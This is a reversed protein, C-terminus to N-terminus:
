NGKGNEAPPNQYINLSSLANLVGDQGEKDEEEDEVYPGDSSRRKELKSLDRVYFEKCPTEVDVVNIEEDSSPITPIDTEKPIKETTTPVKLSEFVKDMDIQETPKLSEDESDSEFFKTKPIEKKHGNLSPLNSDGSGKSPQSNQDSLEDINLDGAKNEVPAEENQNSIDSNTDNQTSNETPAEELTANCESNDTEASTENSDIDDDPLNKTNDSEQELPDKQDTVQSNKINISDGMPEPLIFENTISPTTEDTSATDNTVQELVISHFKFECPDM